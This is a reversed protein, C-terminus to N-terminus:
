KAPSPLLRVQGIRKRQQGSLQMAPPKPLVFPDATVIITGTLLTSTIGGSVIRLNDTYKNSILKETVSAPVLITAQGKTPDTGTSVSVESSSIVQYQNDNLVWIIQASTLNYPNGNDDLMTVYIEWDDGGFLSVAQHKSM